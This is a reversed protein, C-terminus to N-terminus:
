QAFQSVLSAAESHDNDSGSDGTVPAPASPAKTPEQRVPLGHERPVEPGPEGSSEQVSSSGVPEKATKKVARAAPKSAVGGESLHELLAQKIFENRKGLDSRKKLIEFLRNDAEKELNLRLSIIEIIPM